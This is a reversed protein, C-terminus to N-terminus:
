SKGREYRSSGPLTGKVQVFYQQFRNDARLNALDKDIELHSFDQYGCHVALKIAGLAKEIDCLLSYSCALNYLIYPDEPRLSVLKKDVELGKEYLGKKTYLEGLMILAQLFDGRDKIIREYFDIEFDIDDPPSGTTM